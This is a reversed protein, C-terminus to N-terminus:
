LEKNYNPNSINRRYNEQSKTGSYPLMTALDRTRIGGAVATCWRWSLM